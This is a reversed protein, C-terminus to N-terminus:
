VHPIKIASKGYLAMFFMKRRYASWLNEALARLNHRPLSPKHPNKPDLSSSLLPLRCSWISIKLICSKGAVPRCDM